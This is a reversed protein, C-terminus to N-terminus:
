TAHDVLLPYVLVHTRMRVGTACYTSFRTGASPWDGTVVNRLLVGHYRIHNLLM